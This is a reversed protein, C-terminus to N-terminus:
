DLPPWTVVPAQPHSKLGYSREAMVIAKEWGSNRGEGARVQAPLEQPHGDFEDRLRQLWPEPDDAHKVPFSATVWMTVSDGLESGPDSVPVVWMAQMVGQGPTRMDSNSKWTSKGLVQTKAEGTFAFRDAKPHNPAETVSELTQVQKTRGVCAGIGILVILAVGVLLATTVRSV